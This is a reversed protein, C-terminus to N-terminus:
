FLHDFCVMYGFTGVRTSTLKKNKITTLDCLVVRELTLDKFFPDNSFDILINSPKVDRHMVGLQHMHSLGMGIRTLISLYLMHRKQIDHKHVQVIRSMASKGDCSYKEMLTMLGLGNHDDRIESWSPFMIFKHQIM